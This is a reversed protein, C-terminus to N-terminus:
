EISEVMQLFKIKLEKRRPFEKLWLADDHAAMEQNIPYIRGDGVMVGDKPDTAWECNHRFMINHAFYRRDEPMIQFLTDDMKYHKYPLPFMQEIVSKKVLPFTAIFTKFLGDNPWFLAIGDKFLTTFHKFAADWGPTEATVDDTVIFVWEARARKVMDEWQTSVNIKDSWVDHNLIIEIGPLLPDTATRQMSDLLTNFNDPKITPCCVSLWPTNM